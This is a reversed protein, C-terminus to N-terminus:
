GKREPLGFWSFQILPPWLAYFASLALCCLFYCSFVRQLSLPVRFSRPSVSEQAARSALGTGGRTAPDMRLPPPPPQCGPRGSKGTGLFHNSRLLLYSSLSLLLSHHPTRRPSGSLFLGPLPERAKRQPGNKERRAETDRPPWRHFNARLKPKPMTEAGKRPPGEGRLAEPKGCAVRRRVILVGSAM